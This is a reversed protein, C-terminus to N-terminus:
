NRAITFNIDFSSYYINQSVSLIKPASTFRTLFIITDDNIAKQFSSNNDRPIFYDFIEKAKALSNSVNGSVVFRVSEIIKERNGGNDQEGISNIGVISFTAKQSDQHNPANESFAKINEIGSDNNLHEALALTFEQSM